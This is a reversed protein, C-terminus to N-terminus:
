LCVIVKKMAYQLRKFQIEVVHLRERPSMAEVVGREVDESNSNRNSKYKYSEENKSYIYSNNSSTVSRSSHIQRELARESFIALLGVSLVTLCSITLMLLHLWRPLLHVLNLLSGCIITLAMSLIIVVDMFELSTRSIDCSVASYFLLTVSTMWEPWQAAPSVV